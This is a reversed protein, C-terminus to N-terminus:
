MMACYFHHHFSLGAHESTQQTWNAYFILFNPKGIEGLIRRDTHVIKPM